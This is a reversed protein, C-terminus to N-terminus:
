LQRTDSIDKEQQLEKIVFRLFNIEDSCRKLLESIPIYERETAIAIDHDSIADACSLVDLIDRTKWNM